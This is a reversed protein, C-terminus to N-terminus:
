EVQDDFVKQTLERRHCAHSERETRLLKEGNTGVEAEKKQFEVSNHTQHIKRQGFFVFCNKTKAASLRRSGTRDDDSNCQSLNGNTASCCGRGHVSFIGGCVDKERKRSFPEVLPFATAMKM